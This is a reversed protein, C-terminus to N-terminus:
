YIRDSLDRSSDCDTNEIRRTPVPGPSSSDTHCYCVIFSLTSLLCLLDLYINGYLMLWGLYVEVVGYISWGMLKTTPDSRGTLDGSVLGSIVQWICGTGPVSEDMWRACGGKQRGASGVRFRTGDRRSPNTGTSQRSGVPRSAFVLM